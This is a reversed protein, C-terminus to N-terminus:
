IKALADALKDLKQEPWNIISLETANTWPGYVETLFAIMDTDSKGAFKEEFIKNIEDVRASEITSGGPEDIYTTKMGPEPEPQAGLGEGPEPNNVAKILLQINGTACLNSVWEAGAKIEASNSTNVLWKFYEFENTDILHGFSRGTFRKGVDVILTRIQTYKNIDDQTPFGTSLAKHQDGQPLAAAEGESSIKGTSVFEWAKVPDVNEFSLVQAFSIAEYDVNESFSSPDQAEAKYTTQQGNKERWVIIDRGALANKTSIIRVFESRLENGFKLVMPKQEDYSYVTIIHQPTVGFHSDVDVGNRKKKQDRPALRDFMPDLKGCLDAQCERKAGRAVGQINCLFTRYKRITERTISNSVSPIKHYWGSVCEAEVLDNSGSGCACTVNPWNPYYGSVGCKKCKFPMLIRVRYKKNDEIKMFGFRSDKWGM